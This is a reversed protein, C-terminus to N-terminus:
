LETSQVFDFESAGEFDPLEFPRQLVEGVRQAVAVEAVGNEVFNAPTECQDDLRQWLSEHVCHANKVQHQSSKIADLIVHIDVVLSLKGHQTRERVIDVLVAPLKLIHTVARSVPHQQGVEVFNNTHELPEVRHELTHDRVGSSAHSSAHALIDFSRSSKFTHLGASLIVHVAVVDSPEHPMPERGKERERSHLPLLQHLLPLQLKSVRHALKQLLGINDPIIQLVDNLPPCPPGFLNPGLM